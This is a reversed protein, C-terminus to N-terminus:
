FALALNDIYMEIIIYLMIKEYDLICPDTNITMFSIVRLFKILTKNWRRRAQKLRYLSKLIKCFLEKQGIKYRQTIKM